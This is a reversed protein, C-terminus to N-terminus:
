VKVEITPEYDDAKQSTGKQLAEDRLKPELCLGNKYTRDSCVPGGSGCKGECWKYSHM